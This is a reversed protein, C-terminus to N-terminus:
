FHGFMKYKCREAELAASRREPTWPNDRERRLQEEVRREARAAEREPKPLTLERLRELITDAVSSGCARPRL